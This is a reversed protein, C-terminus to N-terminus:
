LIKVGNGDVYINDKLELDGQSVLPLLNSFGSPLQQMCVDKVNNFVDVPIIIRPHFFNM